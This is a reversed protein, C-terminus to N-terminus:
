TIYVYETLTRDTTPDREGCERAVERALFEGYQAPTIGASPWSPKRRFGSMDPPDVLTRQGGRFSSSM